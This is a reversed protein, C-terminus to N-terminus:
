TVEGKERKFIEAGVTDVAEFYKVAIMKRFWATVKNASYTNIVANLNRQFM